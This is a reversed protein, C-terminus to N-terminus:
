QVGLMRCVCRHKASATHDLQTNSGSGARSHARPTSLPSGAGDELFAIMAGDSPAGSDNSATKVQHKALSIALAEADFSGSGAGSGSGNSGNRRHGPKFTGASGNSPTRAHKGGVTVDADGGHSSHSRVLKKKVAAGAPSSGDSLAAPTKGLTLMSMDFGGSRSRRHSGRRTLSRPAPPADSAVAAGAEDGDNRALPVRAPSAGLNSADPFGTSGPASRQHNRRRLRQPSGAEPTPLMQSIAKAPSTPLSPHDVSITPISDPIHPMGQLGGSFLATPDTAQMGLAAPDEATSDLVAGFFNDSIEVEDIPEHSSATLSSAKAAHTAAEGDAVVEGPAFFESLQETLKKTLSVALPLLNVEFHDHVPIGGVPATDSLFVRLMKDNMGQSGRDAATSNKGAYRGLIVHSSLPEAAEGGAVRDKGRGSVSGHRVLQKNTVQFEQCEFENTGAQNSKNLLVWDYKVKQFKAECITKSETDLLTWHWDNIVTSTKKAGFQQVQGMFGGQKEWQIERLVQLQIDLDKRAQVLLQVNRAWDRKM